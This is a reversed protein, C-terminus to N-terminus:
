QIKETACQLGEWVLKVKGGRGEKPGTDFVATVKITRNTRVLVINGGVPEDHHLDRKEPFLTWGFTSQYPKPLRVQNWERAWYRRDRRSISEGKEDEFKWQALNVWLVDQGRNKMIVTFFCDKRISKIAEPPFGRGEYFAAMQDATRPVIRFRLLANDIGKGGSVFVKDAASSSAVSMLATALTLVFVPWSNRKKRRQHTM